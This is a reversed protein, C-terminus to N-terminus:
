GALLLVLGGIYGIGFYTAILLARDAPGLIRWAALPHVACAMWWGLTREMTM